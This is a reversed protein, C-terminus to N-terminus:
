QSDWAVAVTLRYRRHAPLRAHDRLALEGPLDGGVGRQAIDLSLTPPGSTPLEDAHEATALQQQTYPRVSAEFPEGEVRGFGVTHGGGTLRLWDLGTRNGNEQPRAYSHPLGTVPSSWRGLRAGLNRDRYTEHPGLGYYDVHTLGAAFTGTWGARILPRGPVLDLTLLVHPGSTAATLSGTVGPVALRVTVTSTDGHSGTTAARGRVRHTARRWRRDGSLAALAPAFNALGRDNDTEARWLNLRLPETLLESDDWRLSSVTAARTDITMGRRGRTLTVLGRSRRLEWSRGPDPDPRDPLPAAVRPGIPFQAWAQEDGARAWGTAARHVLSVTLTTAGTPMAPVAIRRAEGAPVRVDSHEGGGARDGHRDARWRLLYGSLDDFSHRNHLTVAAGDYTFVVHQYVRTVEALAPHPSRDAAVLGNACFYRDHPTDGFDGGYARRIRGDPLDVDITQDVWDWIFGGAWNPYRHFNDVHEALNGLSNEMAHAYECAMVPRDAYQAARFPKHDAAVANLARQRLTIPLDRGEGARQELDPTPYMLSLVDSNRLDTDGEYHIPRTRDLALVTRRALDFADGDGAENGLSWMVVSPHSRNRRVMREIRDAVAPHWRPDDGPIGRRRVGHSEIEAEDVVYLGLEDCLRYVQAPNPYHSMRVANINARKMMAFDTRRVDDPVDWIRRPHFDHRNVGHFVVPRGNVRLQAGAIDVRRFGVARTSRWSADGHVVEVLLDYLHPSEASWPAAGTVALRMATVPGALDATARAVVGGTCRDTLVARCRGAGATVALAVLGDGTVADFDAEVAVDWPAHAPEATLRVGRTIGSFWWMDQGELFSGTCYRHVLVAVLNRGPRLLASVDFEAPTMSGESYGAPVGNIWLHLASKVAGFHLIVRRGTWDPPMTFWTRHAGTPTDRPHVTGRRRGRTGLAPPFRYALYYPTGYGQLEWVGPVQVSDWAGDDFGPREFGEPAQALRPTWHFRWGGDLVATWRSADSWTAEARAPLKGRGVTAPDAVDRHLIDHWASM